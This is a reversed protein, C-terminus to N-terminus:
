VEGSLFRIYWPPETTITGDSKEVVAVTYNGPGSELEEYNVGWCHFLGEYDDVWKFHIHATDFKKKMVMVKRM